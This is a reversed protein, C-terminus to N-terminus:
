PLSKISLNKQKCPIKMGVYSLLSMRFFAFHKCLRKTETIIFILFYICVEVEEDDVDSIEADSPLDALSSSVM